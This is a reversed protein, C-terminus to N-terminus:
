NSEVLYYTDSTISTYLIETVGKEKVLYDQLPYRPYDFDKLHQIVKM